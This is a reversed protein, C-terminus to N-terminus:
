GRHTVQLAVIQKGLYMRFFIIYLDTGNRMTQCESIGLHVCHYTMIHKYATYDLLCILQLTFSEVCLIANIEMKERKDKNKAKGKLSEKEENHLHM